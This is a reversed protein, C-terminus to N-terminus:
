GHNAREVVILITLTAIGWDTRPHARRDGIMRDGDRSPPARVPSVGNHEARSHTIPDLMTRSNLDSSTPLRTTEASPWLTPVTVFTLPPATWTFGTEPEDDGM